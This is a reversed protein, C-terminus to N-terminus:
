IAPSLLERVVVPFSVLSRLGAYFRCHVPLFIVPSLLGTDLKLVRTISRVM